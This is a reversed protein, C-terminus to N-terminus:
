MNDGDHSLSGVGVHGRDEARQGVIPPTGEEVCEPIPVALRETLEAVDEGVHGSEAHHLMKGDERFGPEDDGFAGSSGLQM